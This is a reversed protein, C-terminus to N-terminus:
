GGVKPLGFGKGGRSSVMLVQLAGDGGQRVPICGACLRTSVPAGNITEELYRQRERGVRACAPPPDGVSLGAHCDM